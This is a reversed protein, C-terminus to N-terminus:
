SQSPSDDRAGTDHRILRRTSTPLMCPKTLLLRMTRQSAFVFAVLSVQSVICALLTLRMVDTPLADVIAAGTQLIALPDQAPASVACGLLIAVSVGLMSASARIGQVIIMDLIRLARNSM